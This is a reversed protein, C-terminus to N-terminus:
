RIVAKQWLEAQAEAQEVSLKALTRAEEALDIAMTYSGQEAAEAAADLAIKTTTWQNGIAAAEKQVALAEQYVTRYADKPNEAHVSFAAATLLLGFITTTMSKFM